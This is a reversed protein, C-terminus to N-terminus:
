YSLGEQLQAQVHLEMLETNQTLQHFADNNHRKFDRSMQTSIEARTNRVQIVLVILTVLVAISSIFEGYSGLLPALTQHDM